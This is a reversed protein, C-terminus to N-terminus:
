AKESPLLNLKQAQTVAQVRNTVHLKSFIESVYWKVTVPSLILQEAIARNSHGDAILELISLERPTLPNLSAQTAPQQQTVDPTPEPSRAFAILEQHTMALGTAWAEEFAASGLQERLMDLDTTVAIMESYTESFEPPDYQSLAALIVVARHYHASKAAINALGALFANVESFFVPHIDATLNADILRFAEEATAIAHTFDGILREIHSLAFMVGIVVSYFRAQRFMSLANKYYARAQILRQDYLCAIDGLSIYVWGSIIRDGHKQAIRLAEEYFSRATPYQKLDSSMFGRRVLAHSLGMPDELERFLAISEDLLSIAVTRDDTVYLALHALAWAANWHDGTERALALSQQFATEALSRNWIMGALAGHTHLAKARLQPSLAPNAAFLRTFWSLGETWHVRELLFWCLSTALRVGAEPTGSTLSWNLAQRLNDLEVEMRDFWVIQESGFRHAETQEALMLFYDFHRQMTTATDEPSISEAAFQRLLEHLNWREDANFRVLSKDVLGALMPLSVQAVYQAAEADFGGRFVSLRAMVQQETPSLMDWSQQFVVRLSRHRESINRHPTTLLDFGHTVHAAIQDPSMARLWSAALELALPMGEVVRCITTVAATSNELSFGSQAQRARQVFLQIASFESLPISSGDPIRLGNLPLVWEERLSLRERSTVLLKVTLTESLIDSLLKAGELLHEFNDLVLLIQKERLYHMLQAQSIESGPFSVAIADAITSAIDDPSTVPALSVWYVGHPFQSLQDDAAQLALRSKGIGGAGSLTLLRCAPDALLAGIRTLEDHRGVFTTSQPPLNHSAM